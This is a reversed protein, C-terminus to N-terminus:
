GHALLKLLHYNTYARCRCINSSKWSTYQTCGWSGQKKNVPTHCAVTDGLKFGPKGWLSKRSKNSLERTYGASCTFLIYLYFVQNQVSKKSGHRYTHIKKVLSSSKLHQYVWKVVRRVTSRQSKQCSKFSFLEAYDKDRIRKRIISAILNFTILPRYYNLKWLWTFLQGM